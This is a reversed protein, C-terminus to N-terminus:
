KKLYKGVLFGMGGGSLEFMFMVLMSISLIPHSALKKWNKYFAPRLFYITKASVLPINHKELYRYSRIGYYYKKRALVLPNPVREHHYILSRVRGINYGLNKIGL